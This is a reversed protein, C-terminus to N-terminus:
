SGSKLIMSLRHKFQKLKFFVSSGGTCRQNHNDQGLKDSNSQNMTSEPFISKDGSASKLSFYEIPDSSTGSSSLIDAMIRELDDANAEIANFSENSFDLLETEFQLLDTLLLELDDIQQVSYTNPNMLNYSLKGSVQGRLASVVFLLKSSVYYTLNFGDQLREEQGSEIGSRYGDKTLEDVTKKWALEQISKEDGLEDFLDDCM